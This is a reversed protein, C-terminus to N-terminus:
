ALSPTGTPRHILSVMWPWVRRPNPEQMALAESGMLSSIPSAMRLAAIRKPTPILSHDFAPSAHDDTDLVPLPEGHDRVLRELIPPKGVPSSAHERADQTEAIVHREGRLAQGHHLALSPVGNSLGQGLQFTGPVQPAVTLLGLAARPSGDADQLFM